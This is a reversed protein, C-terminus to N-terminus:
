ISLTADDPSCPGLVIADPDDLLEALTAAAAEAAAAAQAAHSGDRRGGRRRRELEDACYCIEDAYFSAKDCDPMAELAARADAIIHYLEAESRSRCRRPYAAHDIQPVHHAPM